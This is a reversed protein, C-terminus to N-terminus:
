TVNHSATPAECLAPLCVPSRSLAPMLLELFRRTLFYTTTPNM